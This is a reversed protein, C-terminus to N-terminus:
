AAAGLGPLRSQPSAPGLGKGPHPEHDGRLGLYEIPVPATTEPAPCDDRFAPLLRLSKRVRAGFLQRRIELGVLEGLASPVANGLQRRASRYSGRVEYEPPFTQLRKMEEISLQRSRWHFPGTAPGPEAQLTWSPRDKSLKLLFSWYKRRWGFLPEGGGRSTHWLYNQGEPISPLLPGWRGRPALGPDFDPKDLEGIADWVSMLRSQGPAPNDAHTAKPEQLEGGNRAAVIFVRKRRQPIGYSAADLRLISVEYQTGHRRNIRSLEGRVVDLAERRQPRRGNRRERPMFAVGEVNELLMVEPLAAEVVRLYALLTAARPDLMRPAGGAVWFSSKSFPQCPPGGAVLTLEGPKLELQKLLAHPEHQYVDGPEVLRWDRNAELTARADSDVEVCGAIGFGAEELGLDLGGAGTFLSLARM